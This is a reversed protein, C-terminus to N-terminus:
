QRKPDTLEGGKQKAPADSFRFNRLVLQVIPHPWSEFSILRAEVPLVHTNLIEKKGPVTMLAEYSFRRNVKNQVTLLMMVMDKPGKEQTFGFQVDAKATDPQFTVTLFEAKTDTLNIGFHDGLFIYVDNDAVYPVKDFHQEYYHDKDVRLKLTFPERFTQNQEAPPQEQGLLPCSLALLFSLRWLIKRAVYKSRLMSPDSVNYQRAITL